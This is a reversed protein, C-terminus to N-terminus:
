IGLIALDSASSSAEFLTEFQAAFWVTEAEDDLILKGSRDDAGPRRDHDLGRPAGFLLREVDLPNAM